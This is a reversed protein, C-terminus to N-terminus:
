EVEKGERVDRLASLVRDNKEIDEQPMAKHNNFQTKEADASSEAIQGCLSASAIFRLHLGQWVGTIWTRAQCMEKGPGGKLSQASFSCM